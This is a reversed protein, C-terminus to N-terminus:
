NRGVEVSLLAARMCNGSNTSVAIATLSNILDFSSGTSVGMETLGQGAAKIANLFMFWTPNGDASMSATVDSPTTIFPTDTGVTFNTSTDSCSAGAACSGASCSGPTDLYDTKEFTGNVQVDTEEALIDAALAFATTFRVFGRLTQNTISGVKAYATALNNRRTFNAGSYVKEVMTTLINGVSDGSKLGVAQVLASIGSREQDLIVFAEEARAEENGALKGYYELACGYDGQDFCARAKSLIQADGHPSDFPNFVNVCGFATLSYIFVLLTNKLVPSPKKFKM